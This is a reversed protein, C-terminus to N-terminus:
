KEMLMKWKMGRSGMHREELRTGPLSHLHKMPIVHSIRVSYNKRVKGNRNWAIGYLLAYHRVMDKAIHKSLFGTSKASQLRQERTMRKRRPINNAHKGNKSM